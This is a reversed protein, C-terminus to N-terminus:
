KGGENRKEIEAYNIYNPRSLNQFGLGTLWNAATLAKDFDTKTGKAVAAQDEGLGTVSKGSLNSLYNVFPISQDVYDSTDNIRAGTSWSGGSALELPVRFLPNTMGLTGRILGEVPNDHGLGLTEAIDSQAIGPNIRVYNGDIQFQPGYTAERIFSPFLQDEPFPDALSNPDIGMSIALNYSAKPFQMVRGPHMAAAELAGPLVGRLWSYFPIALKMYKNEFGTLMSADPHNRRVERAARKYLEEKSINGWKGGKKSSEQMLIQLFHHARSFHDTGESAKGGLRGFPNNSADLPRLLKELGGAATESSLLGESVEYTPFLGERSMVDYVEDLTIDGHKGRVLVDGGVPTSGDGLSKLAAMFDMGEHSNHRGLLKAAAAFSRNFDRAGRAVYQLTFTGITNRVHHGPRYITMGQKWVNTAPTLYKTFLDMTMARPEVLIEEIRQLTPALEKAVYTGKPFLNYINGQGSSDVIKVFGAPPKGKGRWVFGHKLGTQIFSAAIAEHHVVRSAAQGLRVLADAPDSSLDWQRWQEKLQATVQAKTPTKGGNAAKAAAEAGAKDFQWTDRGDQAWRLIKNLKDISAGSDLFTNGVAGESATDFLRGVVEELGAAAKGLESAPDLKTGQQVAKMANGLTEQSFQKTLAKVPRIIAKATMMGVWNGKAGVVSELTKDIGYNRNFARGLRQAITGAVAKFANEGIDWKQAKAVKETKDMTPVEFDNGELMADFKGAEADKYTDTMVAQGAAEFDGDAKVAEDQKVVRSAEAIEVPGIADEVAVVAGATGEPTAAIQAADEALDKNRRAVLIAAERQAAKSPNATLRTLTTLRAGALRRAESIGRAAWEAANRAAAEQLAPRAALIGDALMEPLDDRKSLKAWQTIKAYNGKPHLLNNPLLTKANPGASDVTTKRILAALSERTATPDTLAEAVVNLLRTMPVASGGNHLIFNTAAAGHLGDLAQGVLAYVEPFALHPMDEGRVGIYLGTGFTEMADAVEQGLEEVAQRQAAARPPGFQLNRGTGMVSAVKKDIYSQLRKYMSYQTFTNTERWLDATEDDAKAVAGVRERYKEKFEPTSPLNEERLTARYAESVPSLEIKEVLDAVQEPEKVAGKVETFPTKYATRVAGMLQPNSKEFADLDRLNGSFINSLKVLNRRTAAEQGASATKHLMDYLDDGLIRRKADAGEVLKQAVRAAGTLVTSAATQSAKLGDVYTQQLLQQAVKANAPRSADGAIVQLQRVTKRGLQPHRIETGANEQLFKAYGEKTPTVTAAAAVDPVDLTKTDIDKLLAQVEKLAPATRPSEKIVQALGKGKLIDEITSTAADSAKAAEVAADVVPAAPQKPMRKVLFTQGKGPDIAPEVVKPVDLEPDKWAAPEQLFGALNDEKVPATPAPTPNNLFDEAIAADEDLVPAKKAKPAKAAAAVEPAVEAATEAGKVAGKAGEIAGKTVETGAKAGSKILTGAKGIWAPPLYTLPDLAIDGAFGLIGKALPDVNNEVDKYNPDNAGFTDTVHEITDATYRKDNADNSFVGQLFRPVAFLAAGATELAAGGGDGENLKKQATASQEATKNITNTIGFLPRSLIDLTWGIPNSTDELINKESSKRLSSLSVGAPKSAAPTTGQRKKLEDAYYDMFSAM